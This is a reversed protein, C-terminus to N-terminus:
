NINGELPIPTSGDDPRYEWNLELSNGCAFTMKFNGGM